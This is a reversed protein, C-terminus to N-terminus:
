TQEMQGAQGAQHAAHLDDLERVLQLRSSAAAVRALKEKLGSLAKRQGMAEVLEQRKQRLPQAIQEMQAARVKRVSSVDRVAQRYQELAEAVDQRGGALARRVVRNHEALSRDLGEMDRRIEEDQRVMTALDQAALDERQRRMRM